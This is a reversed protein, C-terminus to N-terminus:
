PAPAYAAAGHLVPPFRLGTRAELDRLDIAYAFPDVGRPAHGQAFDAQHMLFAAVKLDPGDSVVFVKWYAGPIRFSDLAIVSDEMELEGRFQEDDAGFVPGSFGTLRGHARAVTKELRELRMWAGRNLAEHQPAVNPWYFAQRSSISAKREAGWCVLERAMLHGRDYPSRMLLKLEMQLSPPLLPDAAWARRGVPRPVKVFRAADVNYATYHALRRAPNAVVTFHNYRLVAATGTVGPLGIQPGLFGAQYGPRVTDIRSPPVLRVLGKFLADVEDLDRRGRWNSLDAAQHEAFAAPVTDPDIAIPIFANKKLGARAEYHVWESDRSAKSWVVVVARCGALEDNLEPEWPQGPVIGRDWWIDWGEDELMEVIPRIRERDEHAYSLFIDAM